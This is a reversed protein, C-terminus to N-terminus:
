KFVNPYEKMIVRKVTKDSVKFERAVARLSNFEYYKDLYITATSKNVFKQQKEINIIPEKITDSTPVKVRTLKTTPKTSPVNVSNSSDAYIGQIIDNLTIENEVLNNTLKHVLLYSSVRIKNRTKHPICVIDEPNVLAYFMNQQTTDDFYTPNGVHLGAGCEVYRDTNVDKRPMSVRTGVSQKISGTFMDVYVDNAVHKLKKYCILEGKGTIPLDNLKIVTLGSETTEVESVLVIKNEGYKNIMYTYKVGQNSNHVIYTDCISLPAKSGLGRGGTQRDDERKTSTGFTFYIDMIQNHPIGEVFDKIILDSDTLTVEIPTDTIGSVIHSDWANCLLERIVAREPQSYFSESLVSFMEDTSVTSFNGLPTGRVNHSISTDSKTNFNVKM